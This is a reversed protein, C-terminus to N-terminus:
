DFLRPPRRPPWFTGLVMFSQPFRSHNGVFLHTDKKPGCIEDLYKQRIKRKIVDFAAGQGRLKRYLEMIEWDIISQEHGACEPEDCQYRYKFVFPIKELPKREADYLTLQDLIAQKKLSWGEAADQAVFDLVKAPRFVGLSKGNRERQRLIECMSPSVTPEIWARRADWM